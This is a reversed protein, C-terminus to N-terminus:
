HVPEGIGLLNGESDRFWAAREGRANKSPYNGEIDAIGNKTRFGPLDVEEFVVGRQRLQSVVTDIDDVEWGMQTFTGPSAGASQFLAFDTGGCRYLLGGPREDVPELGLQEAYFRRARDLDQAPLRTAVRGRTLINRGDATM